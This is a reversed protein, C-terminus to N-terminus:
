VRVWVSVGFQQHNNLYLRKAVKLDLGFHVKARVSIKVGNLYTPLTLIAMTLM